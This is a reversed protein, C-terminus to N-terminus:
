RVAASKLRREHEVAEKSVVRVETKMLKLPEKADSEIGEESVSDLNHDEVDEIDVWRFVARMCEHKAGAIKLTMAPIARSSMAYRDLGCACDPRLGDGSGATARARSVPRPEILKVRYIEHLPTKPTLSRSGPPQLAQAMQAFNRLV